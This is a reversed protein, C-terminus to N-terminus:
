DLSYGKEKFLKLCADVAQPDYLRGRGSEIEALAAEIGLAPRYPRHSSTAEVVDSVALIRAELLIEDGKLGNPYGSGDLREHHQYVTNAIPWPFDVSRLIEYGARVHTKVLGYEIETLRGPRSLLEAPVQIKGIDHVVGALYLGHSRHESLGLERAIAAALKGVRQQHGATYPDRLEVTSALAQITTEMAVQLRRTSEERDRRARLAHIGYAIDDALEVLLAVEDSNFARRDAAYITLAGIVRAAERLPLAICSRFDHRAAEERCHAFAPDAAIDHIVQPEGNRMAM